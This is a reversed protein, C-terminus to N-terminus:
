TDDQNISSNLEKGARFHIARRAPIQITEGTKPNRGERAKRQKVNFTGFGRIEVRDGRDSLARTMQEFITDVVSEVDAKKMQPKQAAVRNILESKTM